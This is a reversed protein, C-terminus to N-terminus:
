NTRSVHFSGGRHRFPFAWWKHTITGSWSHGTHKGTWTTKFPGVNSSCSLIHNSHNHTCSMTVGHEHASGVVATYHNGSGSIKVRLDGHSHDCFGQTSIEAASTEVLNSSNLNNSGSFNGSVTQKPNNPDPNPTPGGEGTSSCGMFATSILLFSIGMLIRNRLKNKM